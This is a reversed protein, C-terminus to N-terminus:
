MTFINIKKHCSLQTPLQMTTENSCKYFLNRSPTRIALNVIAFHKLATPRWNHFLNLADRFSMFM